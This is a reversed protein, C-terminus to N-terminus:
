LIVRPPTIGAIVNLPTLSAWHIPGGHCGLYIDVQVVENQNDLAYGSLTSLHQLVEETLNIPDGEWVIRCASM